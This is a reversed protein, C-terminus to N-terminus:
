EQVRDPLGFVRRSNGGLILDVNTEESIAARVRRLFTAQGLLPYDSGFVVRDAGVLRTVTEIVDFRYLYTSAAMDYIVKRTAARVEPMLEYFPLGGGWHALVWTTDPLSTIASLLKDPTATGKGPYSHGLPESCHLLVPVDREACLVGIEELVTPQELDFGQADANLEGVGVAGARLADDIMRAARRDAPPVICLWSIRDAYRAAADAMYANHEDCLGTDRWPFGCIVSRAIGAVDMSEILHESTALRAKTPGYLSAFWTDRELHRSRETVLDPPFIHVHADIVAHKPM